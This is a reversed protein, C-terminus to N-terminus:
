LARLPPPTPAPPPRRDDSQEWTRVAAKWNAMRNKGVMWGNSEYHAFWKAPNVANKRETCYAQVQELTPPEFARRRRKSPPKEGKVGEESFESNCIDSPGKSVGKSQGKPDGKFTPNGGGEKGAKACLQRKHEEKVMRRSFVVGKATRSFVGSTELEQILAEIENFPCGTMRALQETTVPNGSVHVLFGRRVSEWMLCLMDAWLGRAGISCARLAPDKMWDGPYFKMFPLKAM